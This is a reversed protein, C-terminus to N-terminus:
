RKRPCEHWDIDDNKSNLIQNAVITSVGAGFIGALITMVNVNSQRHMDAFEKHMEARLESIDRKVISMGAQISNIDPKLDTKLTSIDSRIKEVSDTSFKRITPITVAKRFLKSFM